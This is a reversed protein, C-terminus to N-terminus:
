LKISSLYHMGTIRANPFLTVTTISCLTKLSSGAVPSCNTLKMRGVESEPGVPFFFKDNGELANKMEHVLNGLNHKAHDFRGNVLGKTDARTGTNSNTWGNAEKKWDYNVEPDSIHVALGGDSVETM